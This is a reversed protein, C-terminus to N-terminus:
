YVTTREKQRKQLRGFLSTNMNVNAQRGDAYQAQSAARSDALLAAQADSAERARALEAASATSAQRQQELQQQLQQLVSSSQTANQQYGSSMGALQQQYQQQMMALQQQLSQQAALAEPTQNPASAPNPNAQYVPQQQKRKGM